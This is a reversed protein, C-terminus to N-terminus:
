RRRQDVSNQDRNSRFLFEILDRDSDLKILTTICELTAATILGFKLRLRILIWYPDLRVGVENRNSQPRFETQDFLVFTSNSESM